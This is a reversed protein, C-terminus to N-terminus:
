FSRLRLFNSFVYLSSPNSLSAVKMEQTYALATMRLKNLVVVNERM